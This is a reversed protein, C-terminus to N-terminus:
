DGAECVVEGTEENIIDAGIYRGFLDERAVLIEKLGAEALKRALRPTMKQGTEAVVKNTKADMLDRVLNAGKMTEPEFKARWQDKVRNYVVKGFFTDLIEEASMGQVDVQELPQGQAAVGKSRLGQEHAIQGASAPLGEGLAASGKGATKALA